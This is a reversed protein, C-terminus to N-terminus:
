LTHHPCPSSFLFLKNCSTCCPLSVFIHGQAAIWSARSLAYRASRGESKSHLFGRM